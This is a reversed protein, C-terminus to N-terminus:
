IMKKSVRFIKDYIENIISDVGLYVCGHERLQIVVEIYDELTM